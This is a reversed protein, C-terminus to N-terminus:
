ISDKTIYLKKKELFGSIVWCWYYILHAFLLPIVVISDSKKTKKYNEVFITIWILILILYPLLSIGWYWTLTKSLIYIVPLCLTYWMFWLAIWAYLRVFVTKHLKMTYAVWKWYNHMQKLFWNITNEGRHYIIAKDAYLFKYWQKKLRFNLELDDTFFPYTTDYQHKKFIEKKFISNYWAISPIYKVSKKASFALNWLTLIKSTFYYNLVLELNSINTWHTEVYRAWWAWAIQSNTNNKITSWLQTLWDTNARCDADIWAIYKSKVNSNMIIVNRWRSHWFNAWKNNTFNRENLIKYSLGSKSLINEAVEKTQDSSNWDAIIIEIFQRPYDQKLLYNITQSITKEENRAIIGITIYDFQEM